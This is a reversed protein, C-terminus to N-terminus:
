TSNGERAAIRKKIVGVHVAPEAKIGRDKNSRHDIRTHFGLAALRENVMSAWAARVDVLKKRTNWERPKRTFTSGELPRTPTLVYGHYRKGADTEDVEVLTLDAPFGARCLVEAGFQHLTAICSPLDFEDPLAIDFQRALQADGRIEAVEIANWLYERDELEHPADAPLVIASHGIRRHGTFDSVLGLREDRLRCANQWAAAAVVSRGASRGIIRAHFHYIAM